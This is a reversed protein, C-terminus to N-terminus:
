MRYLANSLDDSVGSYELCGTLADPADDHINTKFNKKFKLVDRAFVPWKTTWNPPMLIKRQVETADTLIRSEKNGSQYFTNLTLAYKSIRDVSRAFGRGGNNSEFYAVKINNRLLMEAVAPETIEQPDQTYILDIVYLYDDVGLLYCISCLYDTGTDAVDTYNYRGKTNPINKYINFGSYLLGKKPKPDGQYLSEFKTEDLKRDEILKNKSHRKFWFPREEKKRFDFGNKISERTSLAPFNIKYWYKPNINKLQKRETLLIVKERSEIFGILDEEDWRTFVILEQSNNHLRTRVVSTYWDISNERIIPSSGEAYDKYLDDMIMIDILNGTLSGGRGVAKLLGKYNIIEFEDQTRIYKNESELSFKSKSITTNPFLNHYSLHNINRQIQISFKRAFTQNYSAVGINLDPNKGFMFPPLKRTSLETKGHQPPMTIILKKIIAQAFLNLINAYETHVKTAQYSPMTYKVFDLYNRRAMERLVLELEINRKVYNLSSNNM